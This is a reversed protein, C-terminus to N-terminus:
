YVTCTFGASTGGSIARKESREPNYVYTGVVVQSSQTIWLSRVRQIAIAILDIVRRDHPSHPSHLSNM